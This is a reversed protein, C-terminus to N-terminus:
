KSKLAPMADGRLAPAADLKRHLVALLTLADQYRVM